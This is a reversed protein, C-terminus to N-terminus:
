SGCSKRVVLTPEFVMDICVDTEPVGDVLQKAAWYGMEALHLDVTTLPPNVFECWDLNHIGTVATDQPVPIGLESLARLMELAVSDSGCIWVSPWEGKARMARLVQTVSAGDRWDKDLWVSCFPLGAERCLREVAERRAQMALNGRGRGVYGVSTHGLGVVHRFVLECAKADDNRVCLQVDDFRRSVVAIPINAAKCAKLFPSQGDPMVAIAGLCQRLEARTPAAGADYLVIAGLREDVFRRIGQIVPQHSDPLRRDIGSAVALRPAAPGNEIPKARLYKAEYGMTEAAELVLRRTEEHITPDNRLAKSVTGPSINLSKALDRLTVRKEAM